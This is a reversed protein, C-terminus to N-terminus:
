EKHSPKPINYFLDKYRYGTSGFGEEGRVTADLDDFVRVEPYFIKHCVLQAIRDGSNIKFDEKGHNIVIIGIEGRYDEDIVGAGIYINNKLTLGSRASIQGYCGPPLAIKIGTKVLTQEGSKVIIEENPNYAYLDIGAAKESAKYPIIVDDHLTKIGLIPTESLEKFEDNIVEAILSRIFNKIFEFM